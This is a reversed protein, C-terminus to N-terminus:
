TRSWVFEFRPDAPNAVTQRRITVTIRLQDGRDGAFVAAVDVAAAVGMEVMWALAERAYSEARLRVVETAKERALLWLRSGIPAADEGAVPMDGWWGRRDDTGDPIVEDAAATADTFLSVFVRSRLGDDTVIDGGAIGWDVAQMGDMGVTASLAIDM